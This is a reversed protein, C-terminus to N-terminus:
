EFGLVQREEQSLKALARTKVEGTKYDNYDSVSDFVFMPQIDWLAGGGMDYNNSKVGVTKADGGQLFLGKIEM